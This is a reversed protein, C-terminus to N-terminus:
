PPWRRSSERSFVAPGTKRYVGDADVVAPDIATAKIVAGQPCLNGRPFCVTSTMGRRLAEAPPLIVEDPDVQDVAFLHERLRRRRDSAQWWDLIQGLSMGAVTQAELRLLGLERLHLMM